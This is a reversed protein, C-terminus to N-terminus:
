ASPPWQTGPGPSDGVSTLLSVLCIHRGRSTLVPNSHESRVHVRVRGPTWSSQRSSTVGSVGLVFLLQDPLCTDPPPLPSPPYERFLGSVMGPSGQPMRDLSPSATGLGHWPTWGALMIALTDIKPSGRGLFLWLQLGVGPGGEVRPKQRNLFFIWSLKDHFIEFKYVFYLSYYFSCGQPAM